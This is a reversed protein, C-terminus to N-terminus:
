MCPAYYLIRSGNGAVKFTSGSKFFLWPTMIEMNLSSHDSVAAITYWLDNRYIYVDGEAYTQGSTTTVCLAYWGDKEATIEQQFVDSGSGSWATSLQMFDPPTVIKSEPNSIRSVTPTVGTITVKYLPFDVISAGLLVNGTNYSPESPTSSTPTGKIVVLNVAEVGTQADKTYRACILDIRNYGTTGSDISVNETEGPAIRFQVGQLVGEGDEITINNADVLTASFKQGVDLVYNEPGFIGQNLAQAENATVHPTGTYGTVINM